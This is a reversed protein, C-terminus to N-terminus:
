HGISNVYCPSGVVVQDKSVSLGMSDREFWPQATIACWTGFASVSMESLATAKMCVYCRPTNDNMDSLVPEECSFGYSQLEQIVLTKRDRTFQIILEVM